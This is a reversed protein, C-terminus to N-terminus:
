GAPNPGVVAFMVGQPDQCQVIWSGGPVQHPGMLVQGGAERVRSAAAGADDVNFYYLWAPRPFADTKTMMGGVMGAGTPGGTAFTQYLGMPGMDIAETKTWGFLDAYFAFAGERDTTHLEHWGVRGPTAGPAPPTMGNLPKFLCFVAGQPDAVVAFRGIAPINEPEHHIAGGSAAVRATLADVDGVGIYGVWAPRAGAALVPAPLQMIGAVPTEGASVITYQCGPVETDRATWGVVTRYFATAAATSTNTTGLVYWVFHGKAPTM